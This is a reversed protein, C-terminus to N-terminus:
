PNAVKVFYDPSLSRFWVNPNGLFGVQANGSDDIGVVLALSGELSAPLAAGSTRTRVWDGIRVEEGRHDLCHHNAITIAELANLEDITM